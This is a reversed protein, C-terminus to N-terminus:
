CQAYCSDLEHIERVRAAGEGEERAPSAPDADFLEEIDRKLQSIRQKVELIQTGIGIETDQNKSIM